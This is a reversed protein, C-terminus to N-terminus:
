ILFSLLITQVFATNMVQYEIKKRLIQTENEEHTGYTYNCTAHIRQRRKGSSTKIKSKTKFFVKATSLIRLQNKKKKRQVNLINNGPRRTEMAESSLDNIEVCLIGNKGRAPKLLHEQSNSQM